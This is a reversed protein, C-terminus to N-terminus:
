YIKMERTKQQKNAQSSNSYAPSACKVGDEDIWVVDPTGDNNVDCFIAGSVLLGTQMYCLM